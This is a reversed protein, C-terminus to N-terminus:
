SHRNSRPTSPPTAGIGHLFTAVAQDVHADLEAPTPLWDPYILAYLHLNGILLSLFQMAATDANAMRLRGAEAQGQLYRAVTQRTNVPGARYFADGLDPFRPSEAIVLRLVRITRESILNKLFLRGFATLTETPTRGKVKVDEFPALMLQSRERIVAAFLGEKNGFQEYITRRSGGAQAIVMDLTTHEFGHEIFLQVAAKLMAACREQGRRGLRGRKAM